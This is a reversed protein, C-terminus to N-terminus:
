RKREAGLAFLEESLQTLRHISWLACPMRPLSAAEVLAAAIADGREDCRAPNLVVGSSGSELLVSAAGTGSFCVVPLGVSTAEGVVGSAGERGSPHFLVDACSMLELIENQTRRGHFVVRDAVGLSHAFNELRNPRGKVTDGVLHLRAYRLSPHALARVAVDYRKRPIFHGVGLIQPSGVDFGTRVRDDNDCCSAKALDSGVVVNPFVRWKKSGSVGLQSIVSDNQALVLDVRGAIMKASVRVVRDRLLQLFWQMRAAWDYPPIKFVEAVGGAGVPGWVRLVNRGYATIPTPLLETAFTVHQAYIVSYHAELARMPRRAVLSWWVHELRIFKPNLWRFFAPEWPLRIGLLRVVDDLGLRSVENATADVSRRTTVVVVVAGHKRAVKATAILFRWGVGPESTMQPHVAFSSLVIARPRSADEIKGSQDQSNIQNSPM